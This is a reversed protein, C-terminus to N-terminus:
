IFLKLLLVGIGYLVTVSFIGKATRDKATNIYYTFLGINGVLCWAGWFTILQKTQFFSKVYDYFESFSSQIFYVIIFVIMPAILGLALGLKLNDKTLFFVGTKKM